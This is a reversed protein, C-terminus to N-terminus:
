DNKKKSRGAILIVILAVASVAALIMWIMMRNDDGTEPSGPVDGPQDPQEPATYTNRFILEEVSEGDVTMATETVVLQGDEPDTVVVKICYVTDDYTMGEAQVSDDEVVIYYYEGAQSFTLDEFVFEGKENNSVTQLANGVPEFEDDAAYVMFSFQGTQLQAGTLEKEGHLRLSVPAPKYGNIFTIDKKEGYANTVTVDAKLVGEDDTVVIKVLYRSADYTVGNLKQSADEVIVYYSTGITSYTLTDFKFVSGDNQVSDIPEADEAVVFDAATQYLHFTFEGDKLTRGSLTKEGALKVQADTPDYINTFSANYIETADEPIVLEEDEQLQKWDYAYVSITGDLNDVVSMQIKYETDDYTYGSGSEGCERLTYVFHQGATDPEFILHITSRGQEGTPDSTKVVNGEADLLEFTFGAPLKNQGSNDDMIKEIQICAAVSGEPAYKNEFAIAVNQQEVTTNSSSSVISNIELEGDMDVDTITITFESVAQDYTLGGITGEVEHVRFSYTGPASFAFSQMLETFDFKDFDPKPVLITEEADEPDPQEVMEYTIVQQGLPAWVEDQLVSLEFTFSDGEQWQRGTLTKVGTVTLNSTDANAPIYDNVFTLLNEQYKQMTVSRSEADPLFGTGINVETVTVVTDEEIDYVTAREDPGITLTIIGHGDVTMDGQSTKVTEGIYEDGLNVEFTFDIDDPIVYTEGYPHTVTKQIVLDGDPNMGNLFINVLTPTGTVVYAYTAGVSVTAILILCLLLTIKKATGIKLIRNKLARFM